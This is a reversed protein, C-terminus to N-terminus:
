VKVEFAMLRADYVYVTSNSNSVKYQVKYTVASTTSPSDVFIHNCTGKAQLGGSGSEASHFSEYINTSDRFTKFSCNANTGSVLTNVWYCTFMFLIKNSSSSPTVNITAGTIDSYSTSSSSVSSLEATNVLQLIGGAGRKAATVAGDALTATTVSGAPLGGSSIGTITGNGNIQIAM